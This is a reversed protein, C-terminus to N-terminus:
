NLHWSRKYASKLFKMERAIFANLDLELSVNNVIFKSMFPWVQQFSVRKPESGFFFYFLVFHSDSILNFSDHKFVPTADGASWSFTYKEPKKIFGCHLKRMVWETLCLPSRVTPITSIRTQMWKDTRGDLFITIFKQVSGYVNFRSIESM